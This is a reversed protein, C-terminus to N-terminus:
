REARAEEGGSGEAGHDPLELGGEGSGKPDRLQDCRVGLDLQKRSEFPCPARKLRSEADVPWM